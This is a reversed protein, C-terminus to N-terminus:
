EGYVGEYEEWSVKHGLYEEICLKRILRSIGTTHSDWWDAYSAYKVTCDDLCAQRIWDETPWTIM